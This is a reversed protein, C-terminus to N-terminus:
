EKAAAPSAATISKVYWEIYKDAYGLNTLEERFTGEDIVRAKLFNKLDTVSPQKDKQQKAPQWIALYHEIEKSLFNAASLRKIVENADIVGKTYEAKTAELLDQKAQKEAKYDELTIYYAAEEEDYGMKMLAEKTEEATLLKARYGSLVESKTLDREEQSAGAVTFKTLNEAREEDYGLDMYAKKVQERNLIGLQYMRRVDVRTYPSYSLQILKDRWYPMVDQTKMLLKLEDMTIIGRHLMEYGMTLSPLEWHAAWYAKAWDESLGQKKAWKAFEPPFDEHLGFRKIVEPSFAERVAMRVLDPITPIYFYLKKLTERDKETVGLRDLYRDHEEESMIGRLYCERAFDISLPAYRLKLLLDAQQKTYGQLFLLQYYEDINIYGRTYLTRAAEESILPRLLRKIVERHGEGYGSSALEEDLFSESVLGRYWAQTADVPSFINPTFKRNLAQRARELLPAIATTAGSSLSAGGLSSLLLAGFEHEGSKARRAIAKIEEPMEPTKLIADLMERTDEIAHKEVTELLFLFANAIREQFWERTEEMAHALWQAFLQRLKIGLARFM